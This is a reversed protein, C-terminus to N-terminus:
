TVSARPDSTVALTVSGRQRGKIAMLGFRLVSDTSSVPPLTIDEKNLRIAWTTSTLSSEVSMSGVAVNTITLYTVDECKDRGDIRQTIPVPSFQECGGSAYAGYVLTGATKIRGSTCARRVDFTYLSVRNIGYIVGPGILGDFSQEDFLQRAQDADTFVQM